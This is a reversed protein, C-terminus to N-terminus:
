TAFQQYQQILCFNKKIRQPPFKIRVRDTKEGQGLTPLKFESNPQVRKKKHVTLVIQERRENLHQAHIRSSAINAFAKRFSNIEVQQQKKMMEIYPDFNKRQQFLYVGQDITQHRRSKPPILM